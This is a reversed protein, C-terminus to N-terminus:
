ARAPRQLQDPLATGGVCEVPVRMALYAELAAGALTAIRDYTEKGALRLAAAGRAGDILWGSFGASHEKARTIALM